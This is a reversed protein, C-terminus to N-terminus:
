VILRGNEYMKFRFGSEKKFEDNFQEIYEPLFRRINPDYRKMLTEKAAVEDRYTILLMKMIEFELVYGFVFVHKQLDRKNAEIALWKIASDYLEKNESQMIKTKFDQLSGNYPILNSFRSLKSSDNDFMSLLKNYYTERTIFELFIEANIDDFYYMCIGETLIKIRHVLNLIHFLTRIHDESNSELQSNLAICAAAIRHYIAANALAWESKRQRKQLEIDKARVNEQHWKTLCFALIGGGIPVGAGIGITIWQDITLM